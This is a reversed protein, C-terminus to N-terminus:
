PMSYVRCLLTLPWLNTQHNASNPQMCRALLHPQTMVNASNTFYLYFEMVNILSDHAQCTWQKTRNIYIFRFYGQTSKVKVVFYLCQRSYRERGNLCKFVCLPFWVNAGRLAWIRTPRLQKWDMLPDNTVTYEIKTSMVSHWHRWPSSM